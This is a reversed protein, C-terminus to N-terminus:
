AIQITTTGNNFNLHTGDYWLDGAAPTPTTVALRLASGFSIRNTTAAGSGMFNLQAAGGWPPQAAVIQWTTIQANAAVVQNYGTVNIGGLANVTATSPVTVGGNATLVQSLTV